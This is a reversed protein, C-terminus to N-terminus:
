EELYMNCFEEFDEEPMQEFAEDMMEEIEEKSEDEIEFGLFDEISKRGEKFLAKKLTEYKENM